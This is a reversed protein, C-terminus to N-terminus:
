GKPIRGTPVADDFWSPAGFRPRGQAGLNRYIRLRGEGALKGSRSDGVQGVLLDPKGDGDFDAFWPFSNDSGARTPPDAPLDIASGNASVAFPAALSDRGDAVLPPPVPVGVFLALSWLMHVSAEM